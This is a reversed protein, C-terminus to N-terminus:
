EVEILGHCQDLLRDPLRTPLRRDRKERDGAPCARVHSRRITGAGPGDKVLHIGDHGLDASAARIAEIDVSERGGHADVKAVVVQAHRKEAKRQILTVHAQAAAQAASLQLQDECM